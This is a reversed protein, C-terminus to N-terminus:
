SYQIGKAKIIEEQSKVVKMKFKTFTSILKAGAKIVNSNTILWVTDINNKLDKMAKQWIVRAKNEFGTMQLCDWVVSLKEDGLNDFLKKWEEVAKEADNAKLEDIFTFRLCENNSIDCLRLEVSKENEQM